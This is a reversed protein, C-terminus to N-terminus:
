QSEPDTYESNKKSDRPRTLPQVMPSDSHRPADTATEPSGACHTLQDIIRGLGVGLQAESMAQLAAHTSPAITTVLRVRLAM